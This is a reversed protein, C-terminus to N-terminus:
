TKIKFLIFMEYYILLFNKNHQLHTFLDMISNLLRLSQKNM